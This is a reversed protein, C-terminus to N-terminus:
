LTSQAKKNVNVRVMKYQSKIPGKKWNTISLPLCFRFISIFAFYVIYDEKLSINQIYWQNSYIAHLFLIIDIFTKGSSFHLKQKGENHAVAIIYKIEVHLNHIS